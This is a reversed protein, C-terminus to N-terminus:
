KTKMVFVGDWVEPPPEVALTECREVYTESPGDGPYKELVAEFAAKAEVFRREKYLALGKNYMEIRDRIETTAVVAVLEFIRVPEKKGKVAVLDLERCVMDEPIQKRTFESIVINTGYEKNIGELRSALNVSDGMVTYDFRVKSGMNGVTMPGTNLGIGIDIDPLQRAQWERRMEQLKTMMDLSTLCARKAHDPQEIPAGWFAMIADGMYKDVVGGRAFIIDTMATLYENLFNVLDVPDLKESMTTFGRIDSFMVTMVRKEGGLAAKAPDAVLEAVVQPSVYQGFTRTIRLREAGEQFAHYVIGGVFTATFMTLYPAVQLMLGTNNFQLQSVTAYGGTLVVFLTVRVPISLKSAIFLYAVILGIFFLWAASYYRDSYKPLFPFLETAIVFDVRQAGLLSQAVNAHIEVGPMQRAVMEIKTEGEGGSEDRKEDFPTSYFDHSTPHVNAIFILKGAVENPEFDGSWIKGFPIYKFTNSPGAYNIFYNGLEGYLTINGFKAGYDTFEIASQSEGLFPAIAEFGLSRYFGVSGDELTTAEILPLSRVINDGDPTLTITAQAVAGYLLMEIPEQAVGKDVYRALIVNGAEAIAAALDQDPDTLDWAIEEEGAALAADPASEEALGAETEATVEEGSEPNGLVAAMACGHVTGGPVSEGEQLEEPLAEGETAPATSAEPAECKTVTSPRTFLVDVAVVGAGAQSLNRIVKAYDHRTIDSIRKDLTYLTDEDIGIIRIDDRAPEPGRMRIRADYAVRELRTLLGQPQKLPFLYLATVVLVITLALFSAAVKKKM